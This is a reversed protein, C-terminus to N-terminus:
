IYKFHGICTLATALSENEAVMSLVMDIAFQKIKNEVKNHIIGKMQPSYMIAIALIEATSMFICSSLPYGQRMSRALPSRDSM